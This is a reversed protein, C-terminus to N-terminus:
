RDWGSGVGSVRRAVGIVTMEDSEKREREEHEFKMREREREALIEMKKLEGFKRHIRNLVHSLEERVMAKRSECEERRLQHRQLFDGYTVRYIEDERVLSKQAELEQELSLRREELSELERELSVKAVQEERLENKKM